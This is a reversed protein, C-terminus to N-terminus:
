QPRDDHKHRDLWKCMCCGSGTDCGYLVFAAEEMLFRDKKM